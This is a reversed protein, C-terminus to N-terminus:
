DRLKSEAAHQFRCAGELKFTKVVIKNGHLILQVDDLRLMGRHNILTLCFVFSLFDLILCSTLVLMGHGVPLIIGREYCLSSYCSGCLLLFSLLWLGFNLRLNLALAFGDDFPLYYRCVFPSFHTRFLNIPALFLGFPRLLFASRLFRRRGAFYLDFWSCRQDVFAVQAVLCEIPALLEAAVNRLRM